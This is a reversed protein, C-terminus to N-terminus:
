GSLSTGEGEDEGERRHCRYVRAMVRVREVVHSRRCAREREVVVVHGGGQGRGSSSVSPRHHRCARTRAREMERAREQRARERGGQLSAVVVRRPRPCHM